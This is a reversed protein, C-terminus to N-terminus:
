GGTESFDRVACLVGFFQMGLFLEAEKCNKNV